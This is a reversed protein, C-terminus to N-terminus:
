VSRPLSFQNLNKKFLIFDQGLYGCPVTYTEFFHHDDRLQQSGGVGVGWDLM